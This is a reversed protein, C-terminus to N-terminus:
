QPEAGRRRRRGGGNPPPSRPEAASSPEEEIARQYRVGTFFLIEAGGSPTVPSRRKQARIAYIEGM